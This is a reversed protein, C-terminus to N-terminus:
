GPWYGLQRSIQRAAMQVLATVAPVREPTLRLSSGGVSVAAVVQRERDYVPAAIAVFGPELEEVTQATGQQRIQEFQSRLQLPDVVTRETLRALPLHWDPEGSTAALYALLLKGTATAHAPLRRGVDQSMGMPHRSPVEDVVLVHAGTLVELTAAEDCEQALSELVPRSVARLPNSRTACGGMAVLELGLRYGGSLPNRMILGEAELAALLRFATTKNLGTAQALESLVWEPQADNFTKLLAIARAVAQTGPYSETTHTEVDLTQLM